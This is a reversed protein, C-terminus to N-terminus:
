EGQTKLWAVYRAVGVEISTAPNDYGASRTKGMDAQTFYQYGSRYKEPTDVWHVQAPKGIASFLAASLDKFTRAHGTGCNYLGPASNGRLHFLCMEVIDDVYVFDRKQEGDAIGEQHSRFLTQRGTGQIEHFGHWVPSAMRGKHGEGPGYVNFFKLGAWHPPATIQDLAWLDFWQKSKGYLNLPQLKTVSGHDDSYGAEGRGYTAASSAYVLPLSKKACWSWLSKTYDTNWKDTYAQDSVGTDTCAGLHIVAGMPSLSELRDLLVARDEFPLKELGAFCPRNRHAPSDTLLLDTKGRELLSRALRSGIFGCAGTVLIKM